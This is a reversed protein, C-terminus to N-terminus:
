YWLPSSALCSPMIFRLSGDYPDDGPLSGFTSVPELWFPVHMPNPAQIEGLSSLLHCRDISPM